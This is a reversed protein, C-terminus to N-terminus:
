QALADRGAYRAGSGLEDEIRLLQNYKAVRESRCPAGTKIQGANTAVALDAIFTDETEGSRHSIMQRYNRSAALEITELTESVSGVQNLKILIASGVGESIGRELRSKQTVFLDDGVLQCHGPIARTLAAWGEWDDEGLADEISRIPYDAVWKEWLASMEASTLKDGTTRELSYHTGDFFETTAPDLALVIDTGPKYGATDIAQLLLDPADSNSALAPAFGGEDGVGVSLGKDHLISKLEAYVESGARLADRFSDFGIPAIMFEQFDVGGVAHAGGNLVNMFPVPLTVAQDGGLSKYLPLNKSAAAARANAMSIALIANAGFKKKLPTGDADLMAQDVASQDRSDLGIVAEQLPGNANKVATRVGAGGYRSADGDRLELAEHAGTSAGSPVAACGLTGDELLVDAEVTPKGRSDMIERAHISKITSASM